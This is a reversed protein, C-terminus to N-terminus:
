AVRKGERHRPKRIQLLPIVFGLNSNLVNHSILPFHGSSYGVLTPVRFYPHEQGVNGLVPPNGLAANPLSLLTLRQRPAHAFIYNPPPPYEAFGLLTEVPCQQTTHQSSQLSTQAGGRRPRGLQEPPHLDAAWM